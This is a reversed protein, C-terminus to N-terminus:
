HLVPGYHWEEQDPFPRYERHSRYLEKGPPGEATIRDPYVGSFFLFIEKQYFREPPKKEWHTEDQRSIAAKKRDIGDPANRVNGCGGRKVPGFDPIVASIPISYLQRM